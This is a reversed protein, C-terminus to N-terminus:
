SVLNQPQRIVDNLSVWFDIESKAVIGDDRICEGPIIHMVDKYSIVYEDGAWEEMNPIRKIKIFDDGDEFVPSMVRYRRTWKIEQLNINVIDTGHEDKYEDSFEKIHELASKYMASIIIQHYNDVNGNLKARMVAISYLINLAKHNMDLAFYIDKKKRDNRKKYSIKIQGNSSSLKSKNHIIVNRIFSLIRYTEKVAIDFNTDCPLSSYKKTFGKDELSPIDSEFAADLLSYILIHKIYFGLSPGQGSLNIYLSSKTSIGNETLATDIIEPSPLHVGSYLIFHLMEDKFKNNM